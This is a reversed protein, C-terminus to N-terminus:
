PSKSVSSASGDGDSSDLDRVVRQARDYHAQLQQETTLFHDFEGAKVGAIFAAFNEPTTFLPMVQNYRLDTERLLIFEGNRTVDICNGQKGSYSSIM